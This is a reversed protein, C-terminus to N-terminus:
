IAKLEDNLIKISEHIKKPNKQIEEIIQRQEAPTLQVGSEQLSLALQQALEKYKGAELVAARPVAKVIEMVIYLVIKITASVIGLKGRLTAFGIKGVLKGTAKGSKHFNQDVAKSLNPAVSIVVKVLFPFSAYLIEWSAGLAKKFAVEVVKSYLNPAFMILVARTQALAVFVRGAVVLKSGHTNVFKIIDKGMVSMAVSGGAVSAIGMLVNVVFVSINAMSTAGQAGRVAPYTRYDEVFGKTNQAYVVGDQLFLVTLNNADLIFRPGENKFGPWNQGNKISPFIGGAFGSAQTSNGVKWEEIQRSNLKVPKDAM